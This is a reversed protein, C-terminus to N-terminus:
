RAKQQESGALDLKVEVRTVTDFLIVHEKNAEKVKYGKQVTDGNKVIFSEGDKSLFYTSERDTMSGLYRFKMLDAKALEAAIEEPTKVPVPPVTLTPATVPKPKPKPDTNATKFIDRAMGPYKEERQRLFVSLPDAEGTRSSLGPRIASSAVAGPAYTLPATEPKEGTLVRYIILMVLVVLLAILLKKQHEPTLHM